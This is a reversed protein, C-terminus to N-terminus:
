HYDLYDVMETDGDEFAFIVRYNGSVDVAYHGKLKGKLPHLNSGPYRMDDIVTAGDLRAMINRLKKVHSQQVGSTDGKKFLAELGKHKFSKIM